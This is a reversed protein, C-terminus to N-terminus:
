STNIERAILAHLDSEGVDIADTCGSGLFQELLRANRRVQARVIQAIVLEGSQTVRNLGGVGDLAVQAALNLCVDAALDFDAGVLAHAM